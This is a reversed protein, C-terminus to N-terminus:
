VSDGSFFSASLTRDISSNLCYCIQTLENNVGVRLITSEIPFMSESCQRAVIQVLQDAAKEALDTVTSDQKEQAATSIQSLLLIARKGSKINADSPEMSMIESMSEVIPIWLDSLARERVSPINLLRILHVTIKKATGQEDESFKTALRGDDVATLYARVFALFAAFVADQGQKTSESKSIPASLASTLIFILIDVVQYMWPPNFADWHKGLDCPLTFWVNM